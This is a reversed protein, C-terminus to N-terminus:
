NNYNLYFTVNTDSTCTIRCLLGKFFRIGDCQKEGHM